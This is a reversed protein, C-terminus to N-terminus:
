ARLDDITRRVMPWLREIDREPVSWTRLVEPFRAVAAIVADVIRDPRTVGYRQGFELFAKRGPCVYSFRLHLDHEVDGAVNPLLDYAPSLRYGAEDCVMCFNKVHDDTNGVVFNFVTQRYLLPLDVEPQASVRSLVEFLDQYGFRSWDAGRLLTRFSVMHRRGGQPTVDFREVLLAGREGVREVRVPAAPIGAKRALDMTAAELPVMAYHDSRRSFKAIVPNGKDLLLVKPRAGGASSGAQLLPLLEADSITEGEDFREAAATLQPLDPLGPLPDVPPPEGEEAFSLAGLGQGGLARLLEPLMHRHSRLGARRLLLRRGWADPLADQFISSVEHPRDLEFPPEQLPLSVPDLPVAKPHDLYAPDYRFAARGDEFLAEGALVQEGDPLTLYVGLRIM